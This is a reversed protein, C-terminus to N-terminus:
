FTFMDIVVYDIKMADNGTFSIIFIGIITTDAIIVAFFTSIYIFNRVFILHTHIILVQFYMQYHYFFNHVFIDVYENEIKLVDYVNITITAQFNNM